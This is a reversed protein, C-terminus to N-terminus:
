RATRPRYLTGGVQETFCDISSGDEIGIGDVTVNGKLRVGDYFFRFTEVPVGKIKAFNDFIKQLYATRKVKFELDEDDTCKLKLKITKSKVLPVIAQKQQRMKETKIVDNPATQELTSPQRQMSFCLSGDHDLEDAALTQRKTPRPHRKFERAIVRKFPNKTSATAISLTSTSPPEKLEGDTCMQRSQRSACKNLEQASLPQSQSANAKSHHQSQHPNDELSESVVNINLSHFEFPTTFVPSPHKKMPTERQSAPIPMTSDFIPSSSEPTVIRSTGPIQQPVAHDIPAINQGLSPSASMNKSCYDKNHGNRENDLHKDEALTAIDSSVTEDGVVQTSEIYDCFGTVDPDQQMMSPIEDSPTRPIECDVGSSQNTQQYNPITAKSTNHPPSLGTLHKAPVSVVTYSDLVDNYADMPPSAFVSLSKVPQSTQLKPPLHPGNTDNVQQSRMPQTFFGDHLPSARGRQSPQESFM